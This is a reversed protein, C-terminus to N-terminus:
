APVILGAAVLAALGNNLDDPRHQAIAEQYRRQLSALDGGDCMAYILWAHDNLWRFRPPDPSLAVLRGQDPLPCVNVPEARRYGRESLEIMTPATGPRDTTRISIEPALPEIASLLWDVFRNGDPTLDASYTDRVQQALYTTRELVTHWGGERAARSGPTPADIEEDAPPEGYRDRLGAPADECAQRFLLLHCYVHLAFLVRTLSWQTVRWPIPVVTRPDAVFSCSRVVDFLKLHLGEHLLAEATVWPEALCEPSLFVAAPLPDGGALSQFAGDAQEDEAFGVLSIHPLVGGGSIPLLESLLGAGRGLAGCMKQDPVIPGTFAETFSGTLLETLRAALKEGPGKGAELRTWVWTDAQQRWPSIRPTMLRECPGLGDAADTVVTNRLYWTFREAGAAGNELSVIDDEFANHLVPDCSIRSINEPSMESLKQLHEASDPNCRGLLSLGLRFRALNRAQIAATSGFQVDSGLVRDIRSTLAM